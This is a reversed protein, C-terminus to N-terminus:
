TFQTYTHIVSARGKTCTVKGSFQTKIGSRTEACRYGQVTRTCRGKKGKVMRCQHFARVLSVGGACSVNFVKLSTVYTPGLKRSVSSINCNSASSATPAPGHTVAGATLATLGMVAAAVALVTISRPLSSRFTIM